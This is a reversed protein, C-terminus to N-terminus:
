TENGKIEKFMGVAKLGGMSTYITACLGLGIVSHWLELGMFASLAISPAFLCVGMFVTMQLIFIFSAFM